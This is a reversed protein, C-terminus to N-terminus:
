TFNGTCAIVAAETAHSDLRFGPWITKPLVLRNKFLPHFFIPPCSPLFCAHAYPIDRRQEGHGPLARTNKMGPVRFVTRKQSPISLNSLIQLLLDDM